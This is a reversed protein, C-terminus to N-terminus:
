PFVAEFTGRIPWRYRGPTGLRIAAVGEGREKEAQRLRQGIVLEEGDQLTMSVIQLRNPEERPKSKPDGEHVAPVLSPNSNTLVEIRPDGARLEQDCEAVSLGFQQEDWNVTLTPYSNGEEPVEISTTVGPVTEVLKAIREVRRQWTKNLAAMDVHQWVEVAVLM